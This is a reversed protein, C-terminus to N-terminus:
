LSTIKISKPFPAEDIKIYPRSKSDLCFYLPHERLNWYDAIDIVFINKTDYPKRNTTM